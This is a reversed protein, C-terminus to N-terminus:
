SPRNVKDADEQRGRAGNLHSGVANLIEDESPLLISTRRSVTHEGVLVSFEGFSGSEIEVEVSLRERLLGAVRAARPKFM